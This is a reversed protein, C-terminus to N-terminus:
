IGWDITGPASMRDREEAKREEDVREQASAEQKSWIFAYKEPFIVEEYFSDPSRLEYDKGRRGKRSFKYHHKVKYVHEPWTLVEDKTAWGVMEWKHQFKGKDKFILVSNWTEELVENNVFPYLTDELKEEKGPTRNIVRVLCVHKAVVKLMIPHRTRFDCVVNQSLFMKMVSLTAIAWTLDEGRGNMVTFKDALMRIVQDPECILPSPVEIM